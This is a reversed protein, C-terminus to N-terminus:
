ERGLGGADLEAIALDVLARTVFQSSVDYLARIGGEAESRSTHGLRHARVVIGLSGVPTLGCRKAAERVALDDTLLLPVGIQRCLTLSELEGAQLRQLGFEQTVREVEERPLTHRRVNGLGDLDGEVVRRPAVSEYWVADPVHVIDFIRLFPLSGIEALHILPGADAVSATLRRAGV